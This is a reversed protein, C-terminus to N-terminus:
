NKYWGKEIKLETDAYFYEIDTIHDYYEYIIM